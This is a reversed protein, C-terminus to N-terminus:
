KVPPAYTRIERLHNLNGTLQLQHTKNEVGQVVTVGSNTPNIADKGMLKTQWTLTDGPKLWHFQSFDGPNRRRFWNEPSIKIKGSKSTFPTASSGTGDEGTRSGKLSFQIQQNVSDVATVTLTWDEERVQSGLDMKLLQGIRALFFKDPAVMTPRTYYYSEPFESPKKGNVKVAVPKAQSPTAEWILDMRNGNVPLELKKNGIKFDQGAKLVQLPTFTPTATKPLAKFYNNLISAMVFNGHDNLHVADTLLDQAQLNNQKLYNKWVARVDALALNYKRCLEPLWVENHRGHWEENQGVAIHDTQIVIEATTRSRITHIITEYDPEGGYDHFLILDPYFSTVDNDVTLKLRDSSFGGIAKNQMNIKAAPYTSELFSKVQKWWDQASISQGYVLIRVEQPEQATSSTLLSATRSIHQAFQETQPVPPIPFYSQGLVHSYSLFVTYFILFIRTLMLHHM